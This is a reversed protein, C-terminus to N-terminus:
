QRFYVATNVRTIGNDGFRKTVQTLMKGDASITIASVSVVKGAKKQTTEYHQLDIHRISVSDFEARGTYPYARGDFKFTSEQLLPKGDSGTGTLKLAFSDGATTYTRTISKPTPGNGFQSKALDLKWTGLFPETAPDSAGAATGGAVLAAVMVLSKFLTRM